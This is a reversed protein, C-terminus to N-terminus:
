FYWAVVAKVRQDNIIPVAVMSNLKAASASLGAASKDRALNECVAPVGNLWVQGISGDGKGIKASQYDTALFANQDCDGASFILADNTENPIWVEMRRAFPTDRASLFTMVWLHGSPHPYPIGLGSNVGIELAAQWRLFEISDRLDKVILPM